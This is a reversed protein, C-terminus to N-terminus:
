TLLSPFRPTTSELVTPIGLIALHLGRAHPSSGDGTVVAVGEGLLGRAHPSSGSPLAPPVPSGPYVGRMRPHDPGRPRRGAGAPTFGACAPIIRLGRDVGLGCLQLGRAHPSSGTPQLPPWVTARYVGRMRPHDWPRRPVWFGVLTFGACAPIIRGHLRPHVRARQLGRAHPSSGGTGPAGTRRPRYVGRM